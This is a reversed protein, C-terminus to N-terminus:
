VEEDLIVLDPNAKHADRFVRLIKQFFMGADETNVFVIETEGLDTLCDFLADLNNGYYDPFSLTEKLYPHASSRTKMKSADLEIRM